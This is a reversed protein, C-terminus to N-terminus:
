PAPKVPAKTELTEFAMVKKEEMRTAGVDMTVMIQTSNKKDPRKDVDVSTDQGKAM